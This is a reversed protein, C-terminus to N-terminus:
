FCDDCMLIAKVFGYLLLFLFWVAAFVVWKGTKFVM